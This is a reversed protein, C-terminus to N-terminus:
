LKLKSHDFCKLARKVHTEFEQKLSDNIPYFNDLEEETCSHMEFSTIKFHDSSKTFDFSTMVAEIELKDYIDEGAYPIGIAFRFGNDATFTVNPTFYSNLDFSGFNAAKYNLM